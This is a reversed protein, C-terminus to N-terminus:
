DQRNLCAIYARYIGSLDAEAVAIAGQAELFGRQAGHNRLV